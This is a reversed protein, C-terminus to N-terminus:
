YDKLSIINESYKKIKEKGNLFDLAVVFAFGVVNAGLGYILEAAACATGGTALLDDHVLVKWGKQIDSKHIEVESSGYELDYKYKITEGPLKGAKRVPIFPIEMKNALLFGFLFGRSEIGVIADLELEELQVIFADIISSSLDANMLLPTIDKFNIGEKPFNLVTRITKDLRENIMLKSVLHLKVFNKNVLQNLKIM